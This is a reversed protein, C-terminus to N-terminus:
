LGIAPTPRSLRRELQAALRHSLAMITLTPNACGGTAFVSSGAIYLNDHGHVRCDADVVGWRPTASMRTTGMHHYGGIPHNSVTPDVPWEDGPEFLWEAPEVRGLRLRQFELDLAEVFGLVTAKDQPGLQWDLDARRLGLADREEALRVRSSPNPAQEGRAILYLGTLGLGARLREVPERVRRQLWDRTGRYSHWLGRGRRTPDVAHKLRFYLRKNLPLGRKPDRQLKFTFASNLLGREAQLGPAPVLAPAVPPGPDAFRKRMLAWLAYPRDTDVRAARAHPHEMFYRGVQDHANGIGGPELDDSALLLRANEIAGCALVYYRARVEIPPRGLARVQVHDIARTDRHAQLHVANAHLVVTVGPSQILDACRPAGFREKVEDFRWFRVGIRAPDFAPPTEGLHTWVEDGYAFAGLGLQEHAAAYHPTLDSLTIPWGSHEVWDRREFDTPDLPVCRGGWVNTTGGFFRLRADVLPYYEMGLNAGAYLAQTDAEFDLSGAELLCVRRGAASLARALTIGAAGAGVVAVEATLDVSGDAAALDILM